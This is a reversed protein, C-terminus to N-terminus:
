QNQSALKRIDAAASKLADAPAAAGTLIDGLRPGLKDELEPLWTINPLAHSNRLVQAHLKFHASSPKGLFRQDNLVSARSPTMGAQEFLIGEGEKSTMFNLFRYAAEKNKSQSNIVLGWGQQIASSKISGDPQKFGPVPAVEVKDKFPSDSSRIQPLATDWYPAAIAFKGAKLGDLIETFSYNMIDVPLVRAKVFRAWTEGARIAAAEDLGVTKKAEDYVYGGSSFVPTFFTRQIDEPSKGGWVAGYLTPSSANLTKTFKKAMELYEEWTEPPKSMLDKRYFTYMTDVRLPYMYTKGAYDYKVMIDNADWDAPTLKPDTVYKDLPELGGAAAYKLLTGAVIWGVDIESDAGSFRTTLTAFYGARGVEVIEVQIGTRKTFEKAVEETGKTFYSGARTMVKIKQLPQGDSRGTLALMLAVVAFAVM